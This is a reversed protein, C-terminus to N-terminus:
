KDLIVFIIVRWELVEGFCVNMLGPEEQKRGSELAQCGAAWQAATAWQQWQWGGRDRHRADHDSVMEGEMAGGGGNGDGV